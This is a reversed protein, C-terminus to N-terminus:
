RRWWQKKGRLGPHWANRYSETELIPRSVSRDEQEPRHPSWDGLYARLDDPGPEIDFSVKSPTTPGRTPDLRDAEAVGWVIWKELDTSTGDAVNQRLGTCFARLEQARSWGDFASRSTSKRIAAIAKGRARTMAEEWRQREQEKQQAWKRQMEEQERQWAEQRRREEANGAASPSPRRPHSAPWRGGKRSVTVLRRDALARGTRRHASHQAEGLDNGDGIMKLVTLQRPNLPAWRDM